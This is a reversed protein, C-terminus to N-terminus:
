PLQHGLEEEFASHGSLNSSLRQSDECNDDSEFEGASGVSFASSESSYGADSGADSRESGSDSRGSLESDTRSYSQSM